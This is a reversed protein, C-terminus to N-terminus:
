QVKQTPLCNERRAKEEDRRRCEEDDTYSAFVIKKPKTSYAFALARLRSVVSGFGAVTGPLTAGTRIRSGFAAQTYTYLYLLITVESYCLLRISRVLSGPQIRM